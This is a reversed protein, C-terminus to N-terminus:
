KMKRAFEKPKLIGLESVIATIYKSEVREFAPNKIRIHKPANKWVEQHAREEIKVPRKSFKWSDAVVYIPIKHDKAIEAFM